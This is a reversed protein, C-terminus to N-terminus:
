DLFERRMYRILARIDSETLDPAGGKPPMAAGTAPDGAGGIVAQVLLDDSKALSGDPESLDPVGPMVGAGDAGHCALCANTYQTAPDAALVPSALLSLMVSVGISRLM